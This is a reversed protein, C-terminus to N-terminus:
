ASSKKGKAILSGGMGAFALLGLGLSPEPVTSVIPTLLFARISTPSDSTFWGSQAIIQGRNNIGVAYDLTVDLDTDILSNLDFLEGDDYLFARNEGTATTSYGVVQGSDNIDTASSLSGGLTGLDDTNPNIASNPATRFARTQGDATRSSGVVQGLNNIATADSNDGGLTGLDDTAPNIPSNPATRFAHTQGSANDSSGVVQGLDNIDTARTFSTGNPQVGGLNGINDTQQNILSNPATRFSRTGGRGLFQYVAVQGSNNIANAFNFTGEGIIDTDLNIRSNPATRFGAYTLTSTGPLYGTVQGLDNIDTPVATDGTIPDIYDTNPNVPSNPNTRFGQVVFNNDSETYTLGVVQGLNNIGEARIGSVGLSGLDQVSYMTAANSPQSTAVALGGSLILALSTQRIGHPKM